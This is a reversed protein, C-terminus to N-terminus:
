GGGGGALCFVPAPPGSRVLIRSPAAPGIKVAAVPFLWTGVDYFKKEEDSVVLGLLSSRKDKSGKGTLRLIQSCPWLWGLQLV